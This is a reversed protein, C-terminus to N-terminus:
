RSRVFAFEYACKTALDDLSLNELLQSGIVVLMIQHVGVLM